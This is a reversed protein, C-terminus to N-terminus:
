HLDGIFALIKNRQQALNQYLATDSRKISNLRLAALVRRKFPLYAIAISGSVVKIATYYLLCCADHCLFWVITLEIVFFLKALLASSGFYISAFFEIQKVKERAIREGIYYPAKSLIKGLLSFPYATILLVLSLFNAPDQKKESARIVDDQVKVQEMQHIYDDVEKRFVIMQGPDKETLSNLRDIIFNWFQQHHALDNFNLHREEIFQKKLIPQLQEILLDNEKHLLSPVLKGLQEEILATLKNIAQGPHAKYEEYHDKVLIPEGVEYFLDGRIKSPTSYNVGIPVIKLDDYKGKELYTFAMKATGKQIPRLRREQVCIGEAFVMIKQKRDLLKYAVKFSDLNKKLNEFGGDRLRFIPVIGMSQLAWAAFGKKFADGRAMYRTRPYYVVWSLCVPDMFANPHNMALFMPGKQRITKANKIQLKRFFVPFAFSMTIRLIYWLM